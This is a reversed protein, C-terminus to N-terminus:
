VPQVSNLEIRIIENSSEKDKNDLYFIWCLQDSDINLFATWQQMNLKYKGM